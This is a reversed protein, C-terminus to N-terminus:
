INLNQKSNNKIMSKILKDLNISNEFQEVIRKMDDAVSKDERFGAQVPLFLSHLQHKEINFNKNYMIGNASVTIIKGIYNDRSDSIEKKEKDSFGSAPVNVSLLGDSSECRISGFLKENKGTGQNFEKIKLEIEFRNKLKIQDKSTGDKWLMQPLKVITGEKGESLMQKFHEEADILNDYYRTEVQRIINFKDANELKNELIFQNATAIDSQLSKFRKHYAQNLKSKEPKEENLLAFPIKDWLCVIAAFQNNDFNVDEKKLLSNFLGNSIERPLIEGQGNLMLLEGHYQHEPEFTQSIISNLDKFAEIDVNFSNGSRSFMDITKDQYVNINVFMGDLKEQSILKENDSAQWINFNKISNLLSCRMYPVDPILKKFVKNITSTSIGAKLDKDLINNLLEIEFQSTTENNIFSLYSSRAEDGTIVRNHLDNLLEFLSDYLRSSSQLILHKNKSPSFPKINFRIQPHYALILIDKFCSELKEYNIPNQSELSDSSDISVISDNSVQNNILKLIEIKQNTSSTERIKNIIGFSKNILSKDHNKFKIM